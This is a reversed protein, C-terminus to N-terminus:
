ESDIDKSRENGKSAEAASRGITKQVCDELAQVYFNCPRSDVPAYKRQCDIWHARPGLCPLPKSEKDPDDLEKASLGGFKDLLVKADHELEISIDAFNANLTEIASETAVMRQRRQAALIKSKEEYEAAAQQM